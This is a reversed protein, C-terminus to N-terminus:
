PGTDRIADLCDQSGRRGKMKSLLSGTRGGVSSSFQKPTVCLPDEDVCGVIASACSKTLEM